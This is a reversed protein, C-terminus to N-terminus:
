FLNHGDSVQKIMQTDGLGQPYKLKLGQDLVIWFLIIFLLYCITPPRITINQLFRTNAM